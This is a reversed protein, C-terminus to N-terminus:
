FIDKLKNKFLIRSKLSRQETPLTNYIKAGQYFFSKRGFELRVKPLKVSIGSNRTTKSHTLIEFYNKFPSCINNQLCGHVFQCSKRKILSDVSSINLNNNGIIKISRREINQILNERSVPFSLGLAGCYTFIPVIMTKYITEACRQDILPRISRLLNVRGAARNYIKEFHSALNLTSDHHVGLYKYTSVNNINSGNASSNLDKDQRKIRKSTGFLMTETKEKKINIILENDKFWDCLNNMDESLRLQITDVNKSSTYIVSDDAYTIIKSRKLPKYVDTFHIIFLLPGLISGQPVGAFIPQPESLM